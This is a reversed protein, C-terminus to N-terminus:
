PRTEGVHTGCGCDTIINSGIRTQWMSCEDRTALHGNVFQANIHTDAHETCRWFEVPVDGINRHDRIVNTGPAGCPCVRPQRANNERWRRAAVDYEDREIQEALSRHMIRGLATFLNAMM